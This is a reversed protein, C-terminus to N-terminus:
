KAFFFKLLWTKWKFYPPYKIPIDLFTATNVISKTNSFTDFSYKGHYKGNGSNMIGGFPLRPNVLHFLGINVGGGGFPIKQIIEECFRNNLSYIYLSLPNPNRNIIEYLQEKNHFSIIPLIPGFIEETMIESNLNPENIITPEITLNNIDHKGGYIVENDQIYKYLINFRKPNIIKALDNLNDPYFQKITLKLKEIFADKIRYDVLVYDPAICTQGANFFKSWILRKCTVDLNIENDIIAPSKGGLELTYPILKEICLKAINKGVITSGTFFVYNFEFNNILKPIIEAGDGEILTIYEPTFAYSIISQLVKTVNSTYESPKIVACNGAAIAGILPSLVLQAPYNWPAIILVVGCPVKYIYSKSYFLTIPSNVKKRKMWSKLNKLAFQIEDYIMGIESSYAEQEPKNLDLKLAELLQLEHHKLSAKLKLLQECRFQESLTKGTQFFDHLKNM